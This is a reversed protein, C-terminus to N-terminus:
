WTNASNENQNADRSNKILLMNWEIGLGLAFPMIHLPLSLVSLGDSGERERVKIHSSAHM